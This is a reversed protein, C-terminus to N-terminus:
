YVEMHLKLADTRVFIAVPTYATQDHEFFAELMHTAFGNTNVQDFRILAQNQQIGAIGVCRM